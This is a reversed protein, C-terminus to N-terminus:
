SYDTFDMLVSRQDPIRRNEKSIVKRAFEKLLAYFTELCEQRNKKAIDYKSSQFLLVDSNKTYFRSKRAEEILPPPVHARLTALPVRSDM